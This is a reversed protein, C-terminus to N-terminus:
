ENNTTALMRKARKHEIARPTSITTAPRQLGRGEVSLLDFEKIMLLGLVSQRMPETDAATLEVTRSVLEAVVVAVVPSANESVVVPAVEVAEPILEPSPVVM